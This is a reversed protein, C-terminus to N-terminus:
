KAVFNLKAECLPSIVAASIIIKKKAIDTADNIKCGFDINATRQRRDFGASACACIFTCFLLITSNEDAGVEM